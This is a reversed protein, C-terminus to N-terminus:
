RGPRGDRLAVVDGERRKDAVLCGAVQLLRITLPPFEPEGGCSGLDAGLPGVVTLAALM